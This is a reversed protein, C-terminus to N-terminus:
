KVNLKYPKSWYNNDMQDSFFPTIKITGSFGNAKAKKIFEEEDFFHIYNQRPSLEYPLTPSTPSHIQVYNKGDPMAIHVSALQISESGTNIAKVSIKCKSKAPLYLFCKATKVLLRSKEKQLDNLFIVTSLFAGWFAAIAVIIDTWTMASLVIRIKDLDRSLMRM